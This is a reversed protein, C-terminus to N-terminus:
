AESKQSRNKKLAKRLATAIIRKDVPKYLFAAIGEAAAQEPTVADTYGSCLIIPLDPNLKKIQRALEVGTMGPMTQDTIVLDFRDPDETILRYAERSDQIATVQYGLASLMQRGTEVLFLEDDVLLIRETGRPITMGDDLMEEGGANELRPIFVEFTAGEGPSSTVRVTGGHSKVIGDVVALGMGTGKDVPKTTFFPEFIHGLVEAPMGPGDDQVTLCAYQGPRLEPYLSIDEGSLERVGLLVMIHGHRDGIAQAANICLNMLVQQLQSADGMIMISERPLKLKLDITTPISARLMQVTEKLIRNFEVPRREQLSKRSFALIQRVLDAARNSAKLIQELNYRIGQELNKHACSLEAYGIIAALINNFDHAIGGALTGIAEMKQAQRLREELMRERTVDRGIAVFGIVEGRDNRVPAITQELMRETGDQLRQIMSGSWIRGASIEEWAKAVLAAQDSPRQLMFPNLGVLKGNHIGIIRRTAPNAYQVYGNADLVLVMEAAQEVALMLRRMQQEAQERQEMQQQLRNAMTNFTRALSGLEDDAAPHIRISLDGTGITRAAEELQRVPRIIARAVFWMAFLGTVFCIGALLLATRMISLTRQRVRELSLGVRAIGIPRPRAKLADFDEYDVTVSGPRLYVPFFFDDITIGQLNASLRIVEDPLHEELRAKLAAPLVPDFAALKHAEHVLDGKITYVAAWVADEQALIARLPVELYGRNEAFVGLESNQALNKVLYTGTTEITERILARDTLVGYILLPVFIVLLFFILSVIIRRRYGQLHNRIVRAIVM